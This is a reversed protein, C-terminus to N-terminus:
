ASSSPECDIIPACGAPLPQGPNVLPPTHNTSSRRIVNQDWGELGILRLNRTVFMQKAPMQSTMDNDLMDGEVEASAPLRLLRSAVIALPSERCLGFWWASPKATEAAIRLSRRAFRGSHARFLAIEALLEAEAQDRCMEVICQCAEDLEPEGLGDGHYRPDLLYAALHAATNAAEHAVVAEDVVPLWASDWSGLIRASTREIDMLRRKADSIIAGDRSIAEQHATLAEMYTLLRENTTWFVNNRVHRFGPHNEAGVLLAEDRLEHAERCCAMGTSWTEAFCPLACRRSMRVLDFLESVHNMHILFSATHAFTTQVQRLAAAACTYTILRPHRFRLLKCATDAAEGPETVVAMVRREGLLHVVRDLEQDLYASSRAWPRLVSTEHLFLAEPTKVYYVLRPEQARWGSFALTVAGAQTVADMLRDVIAASLEELLPGCLRQTSPLQFSPNLQKALFVFFPNDIQSPQFNGAHYARAFAAELQKQNPLTRAPTHNLFMSSNLISTSSTFPSSTSAVNFRIKKVPPCRWNSGSTSARSPDETEDDSVDEIGTNIASAASATSTSTTTTITTSAPVSATNEVIMTSTTAESEQTAGESTTDTSTTETKM